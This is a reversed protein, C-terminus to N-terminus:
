SGKPQEIHKKLTAATETLRGIEAIIADNTMEIVRQLLYKAARAKKRSHDILPKALSYGVASGQNVESKQNTMM